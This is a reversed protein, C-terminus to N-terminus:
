KATLYTKLLIRSLYRTDVDMEPFLLHRAPLQPDPGHEIARLTTDPPRSALEASARRVGESESAVLNLTNGRMDCCVADHPEEVFGTVHESLWHYRRATSTQANM